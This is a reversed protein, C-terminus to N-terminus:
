QCGGQLYLRASRAGLSQAGIDEGSTGIRTNVYCYLTWLGLINNEQFLETGISLITHGLCSETKSM